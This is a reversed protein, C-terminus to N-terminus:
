PAVEWAKVDALWLSEGTTVFRYGTKDVDLEANSVELKVGNDTQVAVKAGKVEVLMTYWQGQEFKAPAKGLDLGKSNPDKKDQDKHITVAGADLKVRFLHGKTHNFSLSFGKTGDLKFSFRIISDHNPKNLTCVAPHNDEKKEKGVLAGDRVQWDGKAVTWPKDLTAKAFSEDVIVKGPTALNPKIEASKGAFCVNGSLGLALTTVFTILITKM